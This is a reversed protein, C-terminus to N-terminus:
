PVRGDSNSILDVNGASLTSITLQGGYLHQPEPCLCPNQDFDWVECRPVAGDNRLDVGPGDDDEPSIVAPLGEIIPHQEISLSTNHDPLDVWGALNPEPAIALRKHPSWPLNYGQHPGQIVFDM